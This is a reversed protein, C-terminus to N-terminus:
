PPIQGGFNGSSAIIRASANKETAVRVHTIIAGPQLPSPVALMPAGGSLDPFAPVVIADVDPPYEFSGVVPAPPVVPVPSLLVPAPPDDDAPLEDAPV